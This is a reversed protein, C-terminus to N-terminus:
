SFSVMYPCVPYIFIKHIAFDACYQKIHIARQSVRLTITMAGSEVGCKFFEAEVPLPINVEVALQQCNRPTFLTDKMKHFRANGPFQVSAFQTVPDRTQVLNFRPM